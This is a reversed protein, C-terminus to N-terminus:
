VHLGRSDPYVQEAAQHHREGIVPHRDLAPLTPTRVPAPLGKKLLNMATYHAKLHTAGIMMTDTAVTGAELESFIRGFVGTGSRRVFRNYLAKHPGHESPADCWMKGNRIVRFIWITIRRDDVRPFGRPKSPLYSQLRSFRARRRSSPIDPGFRAGGDGSWVM